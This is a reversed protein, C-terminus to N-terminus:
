NHRRFRCSAVVARGPRSSVACPRMQCKEHVDAIFGRWPRNRRKAHGFSWSIVASPAPAEASVRDRFRKIRGVVPLKRDKGPKIRASADKINAVGKRHLFNSIENRRW